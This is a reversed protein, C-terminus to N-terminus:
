EENAIQTRRLQGCAAEIDSGLERRITANVRYKELIEQFREAKKRESGIFTNEQVKNLPILNVHCLMDKLIKGLEEAHEECDNVGQILAYEFTIRKNTLEIYQNCAQLLQDLPYKKNVAMISNRIPNNPAHLSIALTVQPMKRAFDIIKPIIGCTSVTINRYSLYLGEQSHIIELFKLLADYNEFPEGSGMVVVHSIREKVDEQIKLVQELMESPSLNRKVGGITSACFSCGMKCGVQSSICISNGYRYNMYVSEILHDDKLKFLYKRTADEKSFLIKECVINEIYASDKLQDRFKKPINRMEEFDYIGKSLWSFIQKARFKKEGLELVFSELEGLTCDKINRKMM